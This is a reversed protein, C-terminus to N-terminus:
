KPRRKMNFVIGAEFSSVSILGVRAEADTMM